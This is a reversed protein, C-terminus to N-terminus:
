KEKKAKEKLYILLLKIGEQGIAEKLKLISIDKM